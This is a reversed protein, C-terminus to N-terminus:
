DKQNSIIEQEIELKALENAFKAQLRLYGDHDHFIIKGIGLDQAYFIVKSIMLNYISELLGALIDLNHNRQLEKIVEESAVNKYEEVESSKINIDTIEQEVFHTIGFGKSYKDIDPLKEHKREDGELALELINIIEETKSFLELKKTVSNILESLNEQETILERSVNEEPSYIITPIHNKIELKINAQM